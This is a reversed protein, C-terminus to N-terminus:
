PRLNFHSVSTKEFGSDSGGSKGAFGTRGPSLEVAGPSKGSFSAAHVENPQILGQPQVASCFTGGCLRHAPSDIEGSDESTADPQNSLPGTEFGACYFVPQVPYKPFNGTSGGHRCLLFRSGRASVVERCHSCCSCLSLPRGDPPQHPTLTMGFRLLWVLALRDFEPLRCGVGKDDRM